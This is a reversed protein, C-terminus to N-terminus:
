ILLILIILSLIYLSYTHILHIYINNEIKIELCYYGYSKTIGLGSQFHSIRIVVSTQLARGAAITKEKNQGASWSTRWFFEVRFHVLRQSFYIITHNLTTLVRIHSKRSDPALCMSEFIKISQIIINCFIENHSFFSPPM